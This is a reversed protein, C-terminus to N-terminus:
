VGNTTMTVVGREEIAWSALLLACDPLTKARQSFLLSRQLLRPIVVTELLQRKEFRAWSRSSEVLMKM